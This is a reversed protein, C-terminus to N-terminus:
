HSILCTFKYVVYILKFPAGCAKMRKAVDTFRPAHTYQPSAELTVRHILPNFHFNEYYTEFSDPSTEPELFLNLEKRRSPCINPHASLARYLSTTGCKTAGIIVGCATPMGDPESSLDRHESTETEVM